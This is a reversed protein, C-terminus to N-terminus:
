YNPILTLIIKYEFYWSRILISFCTYLYKSALINLEKKLWFINENPMLNFKTRDLYPGGNRLPNKYTWFLLPTM